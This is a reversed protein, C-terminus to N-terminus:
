RKKSPRTKLHGASAVTLQHTRTDIIAYIATAFRTTRGARTMMDANVQALAEGPSLIRYSKETIEKTPLSRSIVLTLLAAPVGHGVADTVFLGLHHEDLRLVNYIDGSVYAAPRWLAASAIGGISPLIRPLFERQVSAALQLEEQITDIETRLGGSFRLATVTDLQLRQIERQRSILASLATALHEPGLAPDIVYSIGPPSDDNEDLGACLAIIPIMSSIAEETAPIQMNAVTPAGILVLAQAERVAMAISIHDRENIVRADFEFRSSLVKAVTEHTDGLQLSVVAIRPRLKRLSQHELPIAM